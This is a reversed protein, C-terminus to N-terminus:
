WYSNMRFFKSQTKQRCQKHKSKNKPRSHTIPQPHHATPQPHARQADARRTVQGLSQIQPLAPAPPHGAAAEGKIVNNPRKTGARFKMWLVQRQSRKKQTQEEHHTHSFFRLFIFYIFHASRSTRHFSQAFDKVGGKWWGSSERGQSEKGRRENRNTQKRKPWAADKYRNYRFLQADCSGQSPFQSIPFNRFPSIAFNPFQSVSVAFQSVSAPVSTSSSAAGLHSAIRNSAWSVLSDSASIIVLRIRVRFRYCGGFVRGGPPV